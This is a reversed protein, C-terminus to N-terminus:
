DTLRAYWADTLPLFTFQAPYNQALTEAMTGPFGYIYQVASGAFPNGSISRINKPIVVAQAAIGSFAESEIDTLAAPLFFDPAPALLEFGCPTVTNAAYAEATSGSCGRLAFDAACGQFVDYDSNGIVADPNLITVDTLASCGHFAMCEIITVSDPITVEAIRGCGFFACSGITQVGYEIVVSAIDNRRDYWPAFDATLGARYGTMAGTGSITLIGDSFSWALHDGCQGSIDRLDVFTIGAAHAYNEATSGFWGQITLDDPCGQFVNCSEDGIDANPNLITVKALGGCLFFANAGISDVSYPITVDTLGACRLFAGTGIADVSDPITVGALGSCGSFATDGIRKVGNPITVGTMNECGDFAHDGIGTVGDGILVSTVSLRDGWWPAFLRFDTMPGTGSITLTGGSLTWTVDDGCDGSTGNLDAFAIGAAQAYEEATSGPWGHVTLDEPCDLFVTDNEGGFAAGPNYVTVNRLSSCMSFANAGISDTSYPITVDTLGACGLFAGTGIAGVSDPIQVGTLSGCGSFATDGIRGVGNPITVGTMNECGAFAHDGIGTVGDGILVSTVSLREGYWPAFLRFDMMPGTGSITLAGGSLTWTVDDGCKGSTGNLEAFAIGAADAYEEATSGAWGHITLDEPCDRFLTDNEDDFAASPNCVAVHILSGCMSFADAGISDTRYPITVVTLGACRLFAGMGIAAVSDPITVGTMNECGDFAHDGISTVGNGIMVSTVSLRKGWWPAFLRFDTMEGTGSITLTGGSLTWTVDDGCDGSTEDLDAFAIGAAHAYDEATSGLWGHITLNEPCDRFVTDNEGGFAAGPNYVTVNRLSSCMSFANVGISDTSYPITVDTLGACLLFAGVGIATVSDPITVGTLGGCRSFATDGIRGVGNPITVGTMNECGVFAHNGISTVGDGILVSTVSLREGYWPAFLSFDTMEGTGSIMLTGGSLTWTVDDGCDGSTGNLDAFAIGASHAYDEVTSGSWGHITLDEPCDRFVTDNEGGFAAGPNYVTVNKLSSCMSFANAGISDVRYPITVDTLSACRLFAGVGIAAVSDPITVGTLSSCGSFSVTGIKTVSDPITVGTMNECGAFAHDGISTVGDGVLVTVISQRDRYWPAFFSYDTMEGTGSITLTGAALTWTVDDGCSGSLDALAAGCCLLTLLASLVPLMWLKRTM